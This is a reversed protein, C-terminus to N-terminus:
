LAKDGAPWGSSALPRREGYNPRTEINIKFLRTVGGVAFQGLVVDNDTIFAFGKHPQGDKIGTLASQAWPKLSIVGNKLLRPPPLRLHEARSVSPKREQRAKAEPM